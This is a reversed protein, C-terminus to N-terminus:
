NHQPIRKDSTWFARLHGYKYFRNLGRMDERAEQLTEYSGCDPDGDPLGTIWYARKGRQQIELTPM